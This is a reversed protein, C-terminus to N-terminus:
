HPVSIERQRKFAEAYWILEDIFRATSSEIRSNNPELNENFLNGVVPFPLMSSIAPMGLEGLIARLHVGARVGGFSGASYTAIASPKFYYERQFHDLLNKLAPPISHNYEGSVILFADSSKFIGSLKEMVEPATGPKYEKFMKDLLPLSYMKPDIFRVNLNRDTLKQELYKAVKIGRRETRVSGYIISITLEM